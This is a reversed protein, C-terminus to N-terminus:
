SIDTGKASYSRYKIFFKSLLKEFSDFVGLDTIVKDILKWPTLDFAPNLVEVNPLLKPDIIEKPDRMEIILEKRLDLKLHDGVFWVEKNNDKAALAIMYTGIKNVIGEKRIADCGFLALDVKRMYFGAASDVIYKVKIGAESLEKATKIGQHKPRTETVYVTLDIGYKKAFILAKIEESSHCHTIITIRNKGFNILEKLLNLDIKEQSSYIIDRLEKFIDIGKKKIEKEIISIINYTIVQTPRLNKLLNALRFFNDDVGRESYYIELIDIAALAVNKAGQIELRNIKLILDLIAKNKTIELVKKKLTNEPIM